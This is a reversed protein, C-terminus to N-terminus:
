IDYLAKTSNWRRKDEDLEQKELRMADRKSIIGEEKEKLILMKKDIDAVLVKYEVSKDSISKTLKADEDKLKSLLTELDIIQNDYNARTTDFEVVILDYQSRLDTHQVRLKKIENLEHQEEDKLDLLRENAEEIFEAITKEQTDLFDKREKIEAELAKRSEKLDAISRKQERINDNFSHIDKLLSNKKREMKDEYEIADQDLDKLRTDAEKIETILRALRDESAKVRADYVKLTIPADELIKAKTDIFAERADLEKSRQLLKAESLNM